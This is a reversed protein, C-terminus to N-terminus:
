INMCFYIYRINIKRDFLMWFVNMLKIVIMETTASKTGKQIKRNEKLTHQNDFKIAIMKKTTYNAKGKIKGRSKEWFGYGM